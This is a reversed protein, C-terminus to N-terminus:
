SHETDDVKIERESWGVVMARFCDWGSVFVLTVHPVVFFLFFLMMAFHIVRACDYGGFLSQLWGLQAPKHLAWGSLISILACIFVSFYALRQLANYKSTIEPHPNSYKFVFSPLVNLYFWFMKPAERLDSYRPLLAKYGGGVISGVVYIATVAMYIYAFLWHINLGYALNGAGLAFHDFFWNRASESKDPFVRLAVMGISEFVDKSGSGFDIKCVPSAWYISLGSTILALLIPINLWHAIRVLLHFKRYIKVPREIQPSKDIAELTM